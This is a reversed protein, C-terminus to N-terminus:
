ACARVTETAAVSDLFPELEAWVRDLVGRRSEAVRYAAAARAQRLEPDELLRHVARALEDGDRVEAAADAAHLDRAIEAFNAMHPGHVVACGLRAPELPNQGGHPVLSGGVFAVRALRYFLGLEGMTDALFVDTAASPEEGAARRAVTLGMARLEVALAPGRTAHRPVIITLLKPHSEKLRLHALAASREEDAHTSAALWLPRGALAAALQGLLADDAPLPDAAFKLNGVFGVRRAGLEKFREAEAESQGLCLAFGGILARALGPARRWLAYSHKSMRGNLLVMPVGRRRTEGVLNPWLESEVWLALDPRWHDLFRRVWPSCDAPAYQHLTRTPVREALLRASSVTGTTVLLHLRPREGVLRAMLALASQSEGVSAAHLWVLPGPPRALSAEGLRERFRPGDEKGHAVRRRLYLYVVPAALVTLARYLAVTM